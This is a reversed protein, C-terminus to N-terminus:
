RRYTHTQTYCVTIIILINKDHIMWDFYNDLSMYLTTLYIKAKPLSNTKYKSVYIYIFSLTISLELLLVWYSTTPCTHQICYNNSLRM